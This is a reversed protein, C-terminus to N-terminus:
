GDATEKTTPARGPYFTMLRRGDHWVGIARPPGALIHTPVAALLDKLSVSPTPVDIRGVPIYENGNDYDWEKWEPVEGKSAMGLHESVRHLQTEIRRTRQHVEDMKDDPTPRM